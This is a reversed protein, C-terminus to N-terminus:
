EYTYLGMEQDIKDLIAPHFWRVTREWHLGTRWIVYTFILVASIEIWPLHETLLVIWGHGENAHPIAFFLACVQVMFIVCFLDLANEYLHDKLTKITFLTWYMAVIAVANKKSLTTTIEGKFQFNRLQKRSLHAVKADISRWTPTLMSCQGALLGAIGIIWVISAVALKDESFESLSVSNGSM